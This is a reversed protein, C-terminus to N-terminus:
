KAAVERLQALLELHKEAESLLEEEEVLQKVENAKNLMDTYRAENFADPDNGVKWSAELFNLLTIAREYPQEATRVDLAEQYYYLAKEHNDTLVAQPFKTFANGFNNCIMGYQHPYNEKTFFTLAEEFSAVAVGAWISKKKHEAPMDTYLVGLNHHIDAFVDPANAKTFIKLAAQYSEVAPKFFQPNGNQAWTYLLAGKRYHANGALESLGETEFIRIAKTLYGLAESYSESITAIHAADLLLLGAEVQRNNQEYHQLVEWLQQKLKELLETNYPVTLQQMWAQCLTNQIEIKATQSLQDSLNATLIDAAAQAQHYDICLLAYQRATFAAYEANPAAKIAEEYFYATKEADFHDQASAYHRLIAQNHMLRYEEFPSYNSILEEPNVPIGQQLRNIFDLETFM